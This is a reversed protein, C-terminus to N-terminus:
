RTGHKVESGRLIMPDFRRRRPRDTGAIIREALRRSSGSMRNRRLSTKM